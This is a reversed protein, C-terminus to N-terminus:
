AAVDGVIVDLVFDASDSRIVQGQLRQGKVLAEMMKGEAEYDESHLIIIKERGALVRKLYEFAEEKLQAAVSEDDCPLYPVRALKFKSGLMTSVVNWAPKTESHVVKTQFVTM